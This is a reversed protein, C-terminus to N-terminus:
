DKSERKTEDLRFAGGAGCVRCYFPCDEILVTELSNYYENFTEESIVKRDLLSTIAALKKDLYDPILQWKRGHEIGLMPGLVPVRTKSQFLYKMSDLVHEGYLEKLMDVLPNSQEVLLGM